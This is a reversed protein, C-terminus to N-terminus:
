PRRCAEPIGAIEAQVDPDTDAFRVEFSPEPHHGQPWQWSTAFDVTPIACMERYTQFFTVNDIPNTNANVSAVYLLGHEHALLSQDRHFASPDEYGPPLKPHVIQGFALGAGPVRIMYKPPATSGIPVGPFASRIVAYADALEVPDVEFDRPYGAPDHPEDLFRIGWLTGDEAYAATEGAVALFSGLERFVAAMDLHGADDLVEGPSVTGLTAILSIGQAQAFALDLLLEEAGREGRYFGITGTMGTESAVALPVYMAGWPIACDAEQAVGPLWAGAGSASLIILLSGLWGLSARMTM